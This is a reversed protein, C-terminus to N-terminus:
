LSPPAWISPPEPTPESGPSPPLTGPAVWPLGPLQPLLHDWHVTPDVQTPATGKLFWERIVPCSANPRLGTLSCIETLAVNAPPSWDRAPKGALAQAMFEAWIPAATVAGTRTGGARRNDDGVWIAAVLDPTYGVMWADRSEDTTGTKGAAPRGGLKSAVHAATGGPRLVDKLMDTVIFAIGPDFARTKIPRRLAIMNGDKDEVRLVAIPQVALGGNAFPAYATALELPTVESSGLGITLNDQIPSAIGARSAAAKVPGPKLTNMWQATVVNMSKRLAERMTTPNNTFKGDYNQPRWREGPVAGPFDTPADLQTSAATYKYTELAAAYVFPKFASGPQRRVTARNLTVRPERGGVIARIFGSNPDVAVFAVQPQQLGRADTTTSPGASISSEAARQAVPDLTTIIRYGGQYMSGAIDPYRSRLEGIVYDVFYPAESQLPPPVPRVVPESQTEAAQAPSILGREAMRTLVLDRRRRAADPDHTPAYFEPSRPLGALLAAEGLTLTRASKGFYTQSAVEVGYTGDGLYITNWYMGLLERKSYQLELKVTLVAEKLKRALTREQTLYLNRALQQTLTSGGEMIKGARLNRVFARAIGTFDIGKHRYFRDDEIAVIADLLHTPMEVVPIEIRNQTFLRAVIHGSSDLVVTTEPNHPAPMPTLVVAAAFAALGLITIGLTGILLLTIRKVWLSM